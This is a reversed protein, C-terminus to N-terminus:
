RESSGSGARISRAPCTGARRAADALDHARGGRTSTTFDRLGRKASPSRRAHAHEAPLVVRDAPRRRRAASWAAARRARELERQAREADGPMVAYKPSSSTPLGFAPSVTTTDPAAPAVPETAPWIARILPHRTTPMAPPLSFHSQSTSPPAAEVGGDVVLALVDVRAQALQAGLADVDVEVVDSAVDEVRRERLRACARARRARRRWRRRVVVGLEAGARLVVQVESIWRPRM